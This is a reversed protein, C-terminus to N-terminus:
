SLRVKVVHQDKRGKRLLIVQGGIADGIRLRAREDTARENNVYVGGSKVLRTADSRSGALKVTALMEVLSMGEAPLVLETSPADAFVM